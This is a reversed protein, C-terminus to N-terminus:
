SNRESIGGQLCILDLQRTPVEFDNKHKNPNYNRAFKRINDYNLRDFELAMECGYELAENSFKKKLSIIGQVKRLIKLPFKNQKILRKVLLLTNDGIKAAEKKALALHYNVEVYKHEPYHSTNTSYHYTGAVAKHSAIRECNYYLHVSQSNYKVDLEKGVYRYPASYYNKNHQVHCDPHLKARKFYYINYFEQPLSRLCNKEKEFFYDRSQGRGQITTRNAKALWKRLEMNLEILSTFTKNRIRALFDTQLYKVANEVNPKHRPSYSDAPDIAIKYHKCMDNYTSNTVPDYKDAKIVATKCNDPIIFDAVGGFYTFMNNHARIFDELKQTLTFEAYFKGSFSMSGVFLEVEYLEGTAPNLISVSDGSYDVEVSEGPKRDIKITIEPEKEFGHNRLYQCFAQYSPLDFTESLEEYIIKKSAKKLEKSIYEWDLEMVWSPTAVTPVPPSTDWYRKVTARDIGLIKAIKRQSHELKKLRKIEDQITMSLRKNAM